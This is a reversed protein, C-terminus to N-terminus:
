HGILRIAIPRWAPLTYIWIALAQSLVGLPVAVVYARHLRGRTLLDYAGIAILLLDSCLFLQLYDAMFGDGLAKGLSPGLWRSFGASSLFIAAILMLRRHAAPTKRMALAALATATFNVVIMAQIILFPPDSDPTGLQRRAMVIAAAPGLVAMVLILAFGAIGVRRHLDARGTRILSMQTTLLALWGVYAVAHVHVILAYAPHHDLVHRFMDPVFGAVIGAWIITLVVLFFARDLGRHVAFAPTRTIANM